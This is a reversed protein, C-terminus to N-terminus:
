QGSIDIASPVPRDEPVMDERPKNGTNYYAVFDKQRKGEAEIARKVEGRYVTLRAMADSMRLAAEADKGDMLDKQRKSIATGIEKIEQHRTQLCSQYSDVWDPHVSYSGYTDGILEEMQKRMTVCQGLGDEVLGISRALTIPGAYGLRSTDVVNQAETSDPPAFYHAARSEPGDDPNAPMPQSSLTLAAAAALLSSVIM